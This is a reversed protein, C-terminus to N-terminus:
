ENLLQFQDNYSFSISVLRKGSFQKSVMRTPFGYAPHYEVELFLGSETQMVGLTERIAKFAKNFGGFHHAEYDPDNEYYSSIYANNKIQIIAGILADVDPEKQSKSFVKPFPNYPNDTRGDSKSRYQYDTIKHSLWLKEAATLRALHLDLEPATPISQCATIFILCVIFIVLRM